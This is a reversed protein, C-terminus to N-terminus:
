LLDKKYQKNAAQIMLYIGICSQTNNYNKGGM